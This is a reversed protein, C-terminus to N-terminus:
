SQGPRRAVRAAMGRKRRAIHKSVLDSVRDDVWAASIRKHVWAATKTEGQASAAGTEGFREARATASHLELAAAGASEAM